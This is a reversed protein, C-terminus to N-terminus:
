NESNAPVENEENQEKFFKKQNILILAVGVFISADALNFIPWLPYFTGGIGPVWEPIYCNCIDIYFMDIVMGHFWETPANAPALDLFVGYFTSDVVNGVAGGLILAICWLLGSPVDKQALHYLYYAIGTVAVIRFLTLILKGYEGAIKLGFAMGPNLTFHLKFWSGIVPIEHGVDGLPLYMYYYALLKIIQDAVIVAVALLFYKGYKM